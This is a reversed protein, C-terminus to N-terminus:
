RPQTNGRAMCIARGTNISHPFWLGGSETASNRVLLLMQEWPPRDGRWSPFQLNLMQDVHVAEICSRHLM